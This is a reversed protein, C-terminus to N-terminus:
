QRAEIAKARQRAQDVLVLRERVGLVSSLASDLNTVTVPEQDVGDVAWRVLCGRVEAKVVDVLRVGPAASPAAM